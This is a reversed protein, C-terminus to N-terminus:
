SGLDLTGVKEPHGTMVLRLDETLNTADASVKQESGFRGFATHWQGAMVLSIPLRLRM